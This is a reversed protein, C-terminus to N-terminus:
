LLNVQIKEKPNDKGLIKRKELEVRRKVLLKNLEDCLKDRSMDRGLRSREKEYHPKDYSM